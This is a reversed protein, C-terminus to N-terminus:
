CVDDMKKSMVSPNIYLGKAMIYRDGLSYKGEYNKIMVSLGLSTTDGNVVNGVNTDESYTGEDVKFTVYQPSKVIYNLLNVDKPLELEVEDNGEDFPPDQRQLYFRSDLYMYHAGSSFPYDVGIGLIDTEGIDLLRRYRYTNYYKIIEDSQSRMYSSDSYSVERRTSDLTAYNPIDILINEEEVTVISDFERIKIKYHPNYIYGEKLNGIQYINDDTNESLNTITIIVSHGEDGSPSSYTVSINNNDVIEYSITGWTEMSVKSTKSYFYVSIEETNFDHKLIKTQPNSFYGDFKKETILNGGSLNVIEKRYERYVTNIRHYAPELVRELLEAPNYESIDGIFEGDNNDIGDNIKGFHVQPYDDDGIARVNYNTKKDQETLFGAQIHTWFRGRLEKPISQIDETRNIWYTNKYTKNPNNESENYEGAFYDENSAADKVDAYTFRGSDGSDGGVKKDADDQPQSWSDMDDDTDTDSNVAATIGGRDTETFAADERGDGLGSLRDYIEVDSQIQTEATSDIDAKEAAGNGGSVNTKSSCWSNSCTYDTSGCAQNLQMQNLQGVYVGDSLRYYKGYNAGMSTCAGYKPQAQEVDGAGGAGGSKKIVSGGGRIQVM